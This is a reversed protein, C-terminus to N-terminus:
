PTAGGLKAVEAHLADIQQQQLQVVKTLVAVFDLATLGKRDATAVLEPVEEAIFGAELEAPDSRYRFTVPRLGAVVALADEVSLDVIDQKLERSSGNM